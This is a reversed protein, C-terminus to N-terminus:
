GLPGLYLGLGRGKEQALALVADITPTPVGALRGLEQVATVLADIELTRGREVDQLMSMKHGTVSGAADLRREVMDEKIHVGLAEHVARTELMMSKCLARLSPEGVIRDLTAGTLMSIPNFCVNGSLKLWINWRVDDRVPADFGAEQLARSLAEIRPTRTGDPEGLTFRNFKEHVVVGPAVVECAPDVVCGIAREPGIAHWQRGDADVSRPHLGEFRGGTSYFYWWPIGNMATVVSTAPGLLPAFSPAAQYAQHAKLTCLVCDQPGFERPDDSAALRVVQEAGGMRLELGRARIAELHAGRTIICVEHGATALGVALYGGIAGAGYVCFKM